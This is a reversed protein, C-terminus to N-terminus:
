RLLYFIFVVWHDIITLIRSVSRYNHFNKVYVLSNIQFSRKTGDQNEIININKSNPISFLITEYLVFSADKTPCCHLYKWKLGVM